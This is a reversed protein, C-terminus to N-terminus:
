KEEQVLSDQFWILTDRYKEAKKEHHGGEHWKLVIKSRVKSELLGHIESTFLVSAKKIDNHGKGESDGSSLYFKTHKNQVKNGTVFPLFDPYWFSGSMSGVCGFCKTKFSSYVAFLGGLSYGTIGTSEPMPLTRYNEDIEPKLETEIWTLFGEGEGGFDPFKPHLSKAPWPTLQALRNDAIISIIIINLDSLYDANELLSLTSDDGHMYVVPYSKEEIHYNIPLYVICEKGAIVHHQLKNMM